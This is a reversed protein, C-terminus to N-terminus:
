VRNVSILTQLPLSLTNLFIDMIACDHRRHPPLQVSDFCCLKIGTTQVFEWLETIWSSMVLQRYPHLPLEFLPTFVGVELQHQEYLNLLIEETM